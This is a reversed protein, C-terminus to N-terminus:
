FKRSNELNEVKKLIENMKKPLKRLITLFVHSDGLGFRARKEIQNLM